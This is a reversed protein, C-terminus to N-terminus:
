LDIGLAIGMFDGEIQPSYHFIQALSSLSPLIHGEFANNELYLETLRTLNGITPPITGAINNQGLYLFQLYKLNGIWQGITGILSNEDLTLLILGSLNGISPPIIGSLYNTKVWYYINFLGLYASLRNGGLVLVLINSFQGLEDPISGELQNAQLYIKELLSINKLSAPIIGTLNNRSLDIYVLNRDASSDSERLLNTYLDLKRMNSCNRLTDPIIGDLTNFSLNLVQMKQLNALHPIQGSFNNSSLDVTRVSTLNGVSAAITGSLGQGALNLATVRGPHKPSCWVGKWSCFHISTNWNSLVGSPDNTIGEKFSLLSVMDTTNEPVTSCGVDGVGCFLLLLVGDYSTKIARLRNVVERMNMLERPFLRACSLAVQLLSLLCQYVENGVSATEQIFSRCEEKLQDDIISLVLDPFNRGVFNVINLESDFMPDTPRKGMLMELLVIRFSYIDGFSSAQWSQAYGSLLYTSTIVLSAPIRGEFMNNGLNLLQLNSLADGMNPPLAKGLMNFELGLIELSSLNHLAQPIGGSLNNEGLVLQVLNSLQWIKDPISGSLQNEYLYLVKLSTVDGLTQPITGTLNNRSEFTLKHECSDCGSSPKHLPGRIVLQFFKTLADPIAGHLGNSGLTLKQLQQLRNLLPLPGFFSNNSLVLKSLFTLNGLSSSIQGGLSQGALNLGSVRWPQAHTCMVGRWKCHHISTNWSNFVGNPDSTIGQKFHLLSHLDISSGHVPSCHVNGVGYCLLLPLLLLLLLASPVIM